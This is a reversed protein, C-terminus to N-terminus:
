LADDNFVFLHSLLNTAKMRYKRPVPLPRVEDVLFRGPCQGAANRGSPRPYLSGYAEYLDQVLRCGRM